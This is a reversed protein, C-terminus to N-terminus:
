SGSRGDNVPRMYTVIIPGCMWMWILGFGVQIEPPMVLLKFEWAPAWLNVKIRAPALGWFSILKM